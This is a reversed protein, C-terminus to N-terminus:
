IFSSGSFDRHRSSWNDCGQWFKLNRWFGLNQHLGLFNPSHTTHLLLIREPRATIFDDRGEMAKLEEETLRAAFGTAVNRYSYVMRQQDNSSTTTFPMFSRYWCDLDESLKNIGGKPKQVRVIYTKLSSQKNDKELLPLAEMELAMTPSVNLMFILSLLSVLVMTLLLGCENKM